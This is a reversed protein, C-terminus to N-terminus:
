PEVRRIPRIECEWHEQDGSFGVTRNVAWEDTRADHSIVKTFPEPPKPPEISALYVRAAAYFDHYIPGDVTGQNCQKLYDPLADLVAQIQPTVIRYSINDLRVEYRTHIPDHAPLGCRFCARGLSQPVFDHPETMPSATPMTLCTLTSPPM